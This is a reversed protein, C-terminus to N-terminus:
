NRKLINIIINNITEKEIDELLNHGFSEFIHKTYPISFSNFDKLIDDIDITNDKGGFLIDLSKFRLNKYDLTEQLQWMAKVSEIPVSTYVFRADQQIQEFEKRNNKKVTPNLVAYFKSIVPLLLLTKFFAHGPKEKLYPATIILKNVVRYQAVILALLGGMSHGVVNVCESKSALLDYANLVDRVWDMPRVNKLLLLDDIGFGTLMPAYYCIGEKELKPTLFRFERTSASFGHILLTSETIKDRPDFILPATERFMGSHYEHSFATLGRTSTMVKYSEIAKIALIVIGFILLAALLDFENIVHAIFLILLVVLLAIYIINKFLVKKVTSSYKM